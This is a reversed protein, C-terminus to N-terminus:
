WCYMELKSINRKRTSKNFSVSIFYKTRPNHSHCDTFSIPCESFFLFTQNQSNCGPNVSTDTMWFLGISCPRYIHRNIQNLSHKGDNVGWINCTDACCPSRYSHHIPATNFDTLQQTM